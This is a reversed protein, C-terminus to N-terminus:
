QRATLILSALLFRLPKASFTYYRKFLPKTCHVDDKFALGIECSANMAKDASGLV